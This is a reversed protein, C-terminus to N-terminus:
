ENMYKTRHKRVLEETVISLDFIDAFESHIEDYFVVSSLFRVIDDGIYKIPDEMMMYIEEYDESAIIKDQLHFMITLAIKVLVPSGELFLLDLVAM